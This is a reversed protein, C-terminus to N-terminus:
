GLGADLADAEAARQRACREARQQTGRALDLLVAGEAEGLICRRVSLKVLHKGLISATPRGPDALRCAHADRRTGAPRSRDDADRGASAAVAPTVAVRAGSLIWARQSPAVRPAPLGDNIERTV